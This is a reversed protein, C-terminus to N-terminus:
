KVPQANLLRLFGAELEATYAGTIRLEDETPGSSKHPGWEGCILGICKHNVNIQTIFVSCTDKFRNKFWQPVRGAAEPLQIDELFISKKAVLSFHFVDPVFGEEFSLEALESSVLPGLGMEARYAKRNRNLLMFFCNRMNFSSLFSELVMPVLASVHKGGSTLKLESLKSSLSAVCNAPKGTIVQPKPPPQKSDLEQKFLVCQKLANTIAEKGVGLQAARETLYRGLGALDNKALYDAGESAAVAMASLWQTHNEPIVSPSSPKAALTAAVQTPLNWREAAQQGIEELTVGLVRLYVATEDSGPLALEASIQQWEDPCYFAVLMRSLQRLLTCVVAEEISQIGRFGGLSRALEGALMARKLEEAAHPYKETTGSFDTLLQISMALHAVTDVGLVLIAKSVTSIDGGFSAYMASNALRLVKQTLSFDGLVCNTLSSVNSNDELSATLKDLSLQLMPFDGKTRVEKWLKEFFELKRRM